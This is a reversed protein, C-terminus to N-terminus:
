WINPILTTGAPVFYGRIEDDKITRHPIGLPTVNYWRLSEMIVAQVYVLDDRDTLDPLRDRGIVSDLETQAKKQVKPHLALAIM